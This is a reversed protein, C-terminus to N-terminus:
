GSTLAAAQEALHSATSNTAAASEGALALVAATVLLTAIMTVVIVISLFLGFHRPRRPETTISVTNM